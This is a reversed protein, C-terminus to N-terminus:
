LLKQLKWICFFHLTQYEVLRTRSPSPTAIAQTYKAGSKIEKRKMGERSRKNKKKRERKKKYLHNNKDQTYINDMQNQTM